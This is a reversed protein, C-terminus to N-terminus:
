SAFSSRCHAGFARSTFCPRGSSSLHHGCKAGPGSLARLSAWGRSPTVLWTGQWKISPGLYRFTNPRGRRRNRLWLTLLKQTKQIECSPVVLATHIGRGKEKIWSAVHQVRVGSYLRYIVSGISLPRLNEVRSVDKHPKAIHVQKWQLLGARWNISSNEIQMFQSALADLAAKPWFRVEDNAWGCPGSAKHKNKRARARPEKGTINPLPCETPAPNWPAGYYAQDLLRERSEVDEHQPWINKWFMEVVVAHVGVSKKGKALWRWVASDNHTLDQKWRSINNARQQGELHEIQSTLWNKGLEFYSRDTLDFPCRFFAGERALSRFLGQNTQTQWAVVRRYLKGLRCCRVTQPGQTHVRRHLIRPVTKAPLGKAGSNKPTPRAHGLNELAKAM